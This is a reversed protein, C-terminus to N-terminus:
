GRASRAPGPVCASIDPRWAASRQWASSLRIFGAISPFTLLDWTPRIVRAKRANSFCRDGPGAASNQTTILATSKGDSIGAWRAAWSLMPLSISNGTVRTVTVASALGYALFKTLPGPYEHALVSAVSWAASAHESPFSNGSSFFKGTDRSFPRGRGAIARVMFTEATSNALAEGALLGTESLHENRRLNGWLFSGGAAGLLSYTSYKSLRNSRQLQTPKNPVQQSLWSDGAILLGTLAAFGAFSPAGRRGLDKPSSWFTQQDAALHKILPWGLRNEPDAGLPLQRIGDNPTQDLATRLKEPAATTPAPSFQNGSAVPLNDQSFLLAHVLLLLVLVACRIVPLM